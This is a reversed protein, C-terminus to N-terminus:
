PHTENATEPGVLDVPHLHAANIAQVVGLALRELHMEGEQRCKWFRWFCDNRCLWARSM